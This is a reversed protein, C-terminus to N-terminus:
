TSLIDLTCAVNQEIKFVWRVCNAGGPLPCVKMGIEYRVYLKTDNEYRRTCSKADPNEHFPVSVQDSSTVRIFRIPLAIKCIDSSHPSKRRLLGQHHDIM